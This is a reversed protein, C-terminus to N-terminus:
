FKHLIFSEAGFGRALPIRVQTLPWAASSSSLLPGVFAPGASPPLRELAASWTRM